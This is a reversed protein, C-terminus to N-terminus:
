RTANAAREAAGRYVEEAREHAVAHHARVITWEGPIGLRSIADLLARRATADASTAGDASVWFRAVITSADGAVTADPGLTEALRSREAPEVGRDGIGQVAKFLISWANPDAVRSEIGEFGTLRQAASAAHTRIPRWADLALEQRASEIFRWGDEIASAADTSAVWLSITADPGDGGTCGKDTGPLAEVLRVLDARAIPEAGEARAVKILVSWEAPKTV